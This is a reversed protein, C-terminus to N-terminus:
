PAAAAAAAADDQLLETRRSKWSREDARAPRSLTAGIRRAPRMQAVTEVDCQYIADTVIGFIGESHLFVSSEYFVDDSSNVIVDARPVVTDAADFDMPRDLEVSRGEYDVATARWSEQGAVGFLQDGPQVPLAVRLEAAADDRLAPASLTIYHHQPHVLARSDSATPANSLQVLAGPGFVAGPAGLVRTGAPLAAHVIMTDSEVVGQQVIADVFGNFLSMQFSSGVYQVRAGEPPLLQPHLLLWGVAVDQRVGEVRASGARVSGRVDHKWQLNTLQTSGQTWDGLMWCEELDRKVNVVLNLCAPEFLSDRMFVETAVAVVDDVVDELAASSLRIRRRDDSIFTIASAFRLHKGSIVRQGVRLESPDGHTLEVDTLESSGRTMSARFTFGEEVRLVRASKGAVVLLAGPQLHQQTVAGSQLLPVMRTGTVALVPIHLAQSLEFDRLVYDAVIRKQVDTNYSPRMYYLMIIDYQRLVDFEAIFAASLYSRYIVRSWDIIGIKIPADPNTYDADDILINKFHLDGHVIGLDHLVRLFKALARAIRDARALFVPDISTSDLRGCHNEVYNFLTIGPARDMVVQLTQAANPEPGRATSSVAYVRPVAVTVGDDVFQGDFRRARPVARDVADVIAARSLRATRAYVDCAVVTVDATVQFRYRTAPSYSLTGPLQQEVDFTGDGAVDAVKFTVSAGDMRGSFLDGRRPVSGSTVTFVGDAAISAEFAAGPGFVNEDRLVLGVFFFGYTNYADYSGARFSARVYKFNEYVMRHKIEGALHLDDRASVLHFPSPRGNVSLASLAAADEANVNSRSQAAISLKLVMDKADPAASQLLYAPSEAGVGLLERPSYGTLRARDQRQTLRSVMREGLEDCVEPAARARPERGFLRAHEDARQVLLCPGQVGGALTRRMRFFRKTEKKHKSEDSSV